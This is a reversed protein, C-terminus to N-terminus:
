LTPSSRDFCALALILFPTTPLLPLLAGGVIALLTFLGGLVIYL